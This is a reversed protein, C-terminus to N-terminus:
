SSIGDPIDLLLGIVGNEGEGTTLGEIVVPALDPDTFIFIQVPTGPPPIEGDTVVITTIGAEDSQAVGDLITPYEAGYLIVQAPVEMVPADMEQITTRVPAPVMRSRQELKMRDPSVVFKM